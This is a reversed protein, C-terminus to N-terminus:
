IIEKLCLQKQTFAFRPSGTQLHLPVFIARAFIVRYVTYSLLRCTHLYLINFWLQDKYIFKLAVKTSLDIMKETSNLLIWILQVIFMTM